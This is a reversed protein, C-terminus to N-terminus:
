FLLNYLGSIRFSLKFGFMRSEIRSGSCFLALNEISKSEIAAAISAVHQACRTYLTRSSEGIYIQRSTTCQNCQGTYVVGEKYCQERCKDGSELIPCGKRQCSDRKFPNNMSLGTHIKMGPREVVKVSTGCFQEDQCLVGGADTTKM